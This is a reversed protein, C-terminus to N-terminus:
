HIIPAIFDKSTAYVAFEMITDFGTKNLISTIIPKLTMESIDLEALMENRTKNQCVLRIVAIEKETLNNAFEPTETPTLYISMGDMTNRIVYFLHKSEFNKYIYSHVGAKRAENVFTIEPYATMVVIKIKPLEKLVQVAHTIGSKRDKTVVDMLILDPKLEHCLALTKSADDTAGIVKMDEQDNLIHSLSDSFMIQDEVILIKIM